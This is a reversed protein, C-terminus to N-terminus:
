AYAIEKNVYRRLCSRSSEDLEQVVDIHALELEMHGSEIKSFDLIDNILALLHDASSRVIKAIDRQEKSLQGDLLLGTMGIIGNMPTRIEHSMAALFDSKLQGVAEAQSMAETLKESAQQICRVM